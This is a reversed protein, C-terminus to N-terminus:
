LVNPLQETAHERSAARKSFARAAIADKLSGRLIKRVVLLGGTLAVLVCLVLIKAFIAEGTEPVLKHAFVYFGHHADLANVFVAGLFVGLLAAPLALVLIEASVRQLLKRAPAGMAALIGINKEHEVLERFIATYIGVALVLASLAAFVWSVLVVSDRCVQVLMSIYRGEIAFKQPKGYKLVALEEPAAAAAAGGGIVVRGGRLDNVVISVDERALAHLLDVTSNTKVRILYAVDEAIGALACVDKFRLLLEDEAAGQSSIIGCVTVELFHAATSGTLTLRDGVSAHLRAALRRGLLCEGNLDGDLLRACEVVLFEEFDVGRVLVPVERVVCFAYVEPSVASVSDLERLAEALTRNLQQEEFM